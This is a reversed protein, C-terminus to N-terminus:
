AKQMLRALTKESTTRAAAANASDAQSRQPSGIVDCFPSRIRAQLPSPGLTLYFIETMGSATCVAIRFGSSERYKDIDSSEPNAAKCRGPIVVKTL